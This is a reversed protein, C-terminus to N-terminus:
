RGSRAWSFREKQMFRAIDQYLVRNDDHHHRRVWRLGSQYFRLRQARIEGPLYHPMHNSIIRKQMGELYSIHTTVVVQLLTRHAADAFRGVNPLAHPDDLFADLTARAEEFSARIPDSPADMGAMM